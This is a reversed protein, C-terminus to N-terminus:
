YGPGCIYAIDEINASRTIQIQGGQGAGQRGDPNTREKYLAARMCESPSLFSAAVRRPGGGGHVLQYVSM